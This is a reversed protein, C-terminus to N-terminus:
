KVAKVGVVKAVTANWNSVCEASCRAAWNKLVFDKLVKQRAAV